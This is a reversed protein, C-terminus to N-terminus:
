QQLALLKKFDSEATDTLKWNGASEDKHCKDCEVKMGKEKGVKQMAKMTAKARKIGGDKCAKVVPNDGKTAITCANDDASATATFLGVTLLGTLLSGCFFRLM